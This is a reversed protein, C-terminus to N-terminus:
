GSSPGHSRAPTQRLAQAPSRSRRGSAALRARHLEEDVAGLPLARRFDGLGIVSSVPLVPMHINEGSSNRSRITRLRPRSAIRPARWRRRRSRASAPHRGRRGPATACAGVRAVADLVGRQQPWVQDVPQGVLLHDRNGAPPERRVVVRHQHLAEPGLTHAPVLRPVGQQLAVDRNRHGAVRRHLRGVRCSVEPGDHVAAGLELAVEDHLRLLADAEVFGQQGVGAVARPNSVLFM